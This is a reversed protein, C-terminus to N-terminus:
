AKSLSDIVLVAGVEDNLVSFRHMYHIHVATRTDLFLVTLLGIGELGVQSSGVLQCALQSEPIHTADDDNVKDVHFQGLITLQEVFAHALVHLLVSGSM